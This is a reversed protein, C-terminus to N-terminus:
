APRLMDLLLQRHVQRTQAAAQPADDGVLMSRIAWLLAPAVALPFHQTLTCRRMVGREVLRDVIAQERAEHPQLVQDQWRRILDPVRTSEAIMLRLTAIAAPEQLVAYLRDLYADIVAELPMDGDPLWVGGTMQTAPLITTLLAEFIQEKSAFHQYIGGKSLGVASAIDEIRAAAFGHRSFQALAAALIQQCRVEPKLRVRKRTLGPTNEEM